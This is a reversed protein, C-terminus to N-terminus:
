TAFNSRRQCLGPMLETSANQLYTYQMELLANGIRTIMYISQLRKAIVNRRLRAFFCLGTMLETSANQLYTYQMALLANGIRTVIVNRRLVAFFCLGTM